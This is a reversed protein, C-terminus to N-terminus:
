GSSQKEEYRTGGEAREQVDGDGKPVHAEAFCTQLIKKIVPSASMVLPAAYSFEIALYANCCCLQHGFRSCSGQCCRGSGECVYRAHIPSWAVEGSLRKDHPFSREIINLGFRILVLGRLDRGGEWVIPYVQPVTHWSAQLMSLLDVNQNAWHIGNRVNSAPEMPSRQWMHASKYSVLRRPLSRIASAEQTFICIRTCWFM